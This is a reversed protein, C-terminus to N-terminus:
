AARSAPSDGRSESLRLAICFMSFHLFEGESVVDRAAGPGHHEDKFRLILHKVEKKKMHHIMDRYNEPM